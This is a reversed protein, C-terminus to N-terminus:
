FIDIMKHHNNYIVGTNGRFTIARILTQGVHRGIRSKYIM